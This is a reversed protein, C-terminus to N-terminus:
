FGHRRRERANARRLSIIRMMSGRRVFVVSCVTGALMGFARFRPEGYDRRRDPVIAARAWDFDEVDAFDLGHKALNSARKTEDWEFEPPTRM